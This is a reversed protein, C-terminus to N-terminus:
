IGVRGTDPESSRSNRDKQQPTQFGARVQPSAEQAASAHSRAPVGNATPHREQSKRSPTAPALERPSPKRLGATAGRM